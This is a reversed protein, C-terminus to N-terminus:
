TEKDKTSLTVVPAYSKISTVQFTTERDNNNDGGAYTHAGYM